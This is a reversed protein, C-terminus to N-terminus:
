DLVHEVPGLLLLLNSILFLYVFYSVTRVFSCDVYSLSRHSLDITKLIVFHNLIFQIVIFPSFHINKYAFNLWGSPSWRVRSLFGM